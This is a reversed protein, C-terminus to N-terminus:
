NSENIRLERMEMRSNVRSSSPYNDQTTVLRRHEVTVREDEITCLRYALSLAILLVLMLVFAIVGTTVQFAMLTRRVSVEEPAFTTTM